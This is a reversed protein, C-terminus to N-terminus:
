YLIVLLIGTPAPVAANSCVSDPGVGFLEVSNNPVCLGNVPLTFTGGVSVWSSWNSGNYNSLWCASDNGVVFVNLQNAAPSCAGVISSATWNLSEWTNWNGDANGSLHIVSHDQGVAFIDIRGDSNSVATPQSALYGGGLDQWTPWWDSGNWQNHLLTRNLGVVFVDVFNPWGIAAVASFTLPDNISPTVGAPPFSWGGTSDWTLQYLANYTGFVFLEIRNGSGWVVATPQGVYVGNPDIMVWNSWQSGNWSTQYPNGTAGLAFVLLNNFGLSIATFTDFCPSPTPCGIPLLEWNNWTGNYVDHYISPGAAQAFLDIRLPDTGWSVVQVESNIYPGGLSQWTNNM